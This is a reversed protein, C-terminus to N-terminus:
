CSRPKSGTFIFRAAGACANADVTRRGRRLHDAPHRQRVSFKQEGDLLALSVGRLVEVNGDRKRLESVELLPKDM